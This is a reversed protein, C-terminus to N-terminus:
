LNTESEKIQEIIKEEITKRKHKRGPKKQGQLHRLIDRQLLVLLAIILATKEIGNLYEIHQGLLSWMIIWILIRLGEDLSSRLWKIILAMIIKTSYIIKPQKM